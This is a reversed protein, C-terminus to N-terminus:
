DERLEGHFASILSRTRRLIEEEGIGNFRHVMMRQRSEGWHMTLGQLVAAGMREYFCIRREALRRLEPDAIVDPREVDFLMFDPHHEQVYPLLAQYFASGGGGGRREPVIAIYGLYALNYAENWFFQAMGTFCDEKDLLAWLRSRIPKGEERDLLARIHGSVPGREIPPFASEYLDLWPLLYPDHITILEHLYYFPTIPNMM